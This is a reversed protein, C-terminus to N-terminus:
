RSGAAPPAPVVQQQGDSYMMMIKEGRYPLVVV